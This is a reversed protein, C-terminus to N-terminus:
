NPGAPAQRGALEREILDKALWAPKKEKLMTLFPTQMHPILFPLWKGVLGPESLWRRLNRSRQVSLPHHVDGSLQQRVEPEPPLTAFFDAQTEVTARKNFLLLLVTAFEDVLEENDNFPYKWQTFLVHSIEHMLIFLVLDNLKSKDALADSVQKVYELCLYVQDRSGYANARNCRVLNINLDDFVFAKRLNETLRAFAETLRAGAQAGKEDGSEERRPIALTDLSAKADLTFSRPAEGQRNDVVLYYDGSRPAVISFDTKDSVQAQFLATRTTQVRAYERYEEASLLMVGVRGNIELVVHLTADRNLNSFRVGTWKGADVQSSFRVSKEAALAPAAALCVLLLLRVFVSVVSKM